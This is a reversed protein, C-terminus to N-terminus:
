VQKLILGNQGDYVHLFKYGQGTYFKKLTSFSVRKAGHGFPSANGMIEDGDREIHFETEKAIIHYLAAILENKM